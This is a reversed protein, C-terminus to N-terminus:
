ATVNINKGLNDPLAETGRTVVEIMQAATAVQIDLAKNMVSLTVSDGNNRATAAIASTSIGASIDM